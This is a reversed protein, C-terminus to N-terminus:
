RRAARRHRRPERDLGVQAGRRAVVAAAPVPFVADYRQRALRLPQGSVLGLDGPLPIEVKHGAPHTARRSCDLFRPGIQADPPAPIPPRRAPRAPRRDNSARPGLGIVEVRCFDLKALTPASRSTSARVRRPPPAGEGARDPAGPRSRRGSRPWRRSWRARSRRGRRTFKTLAARAMEVLKEKEVLHLEAQRLEAGNGAARM